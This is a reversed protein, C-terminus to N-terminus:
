FMKTLLIAFESDFLKDPGDKLPAVAAATLIYDQGLQFRLGATANLVDLRNYPNTVIDGSSPGAAALDTDNLTTSYHLEGIVAARQIWHGCHQSQYFWHGLTYDLYLFNQQQYRSIAFRNGGDGRSFTDGNLDFDLQAIATSWTRDTHRRYYAVFPLLHVSQNQVYCITSGLSSNTLRADPGTPLSVTLGASLASDNGQQLLISKFVLSMNGFEVDTQSGSGNVDQVNDLGGVLPMRVEISSSGELFTKELGLTVRNVDQGALDINRVPQSFHNYNVFWRNVPIPSVNEAIKFRRDGGAIPVNFGNNINTNGYSPGAILATSGFFDGITADRFGINENASAFQASTAFTTSPLPMAPLDDAPQMLDDTMPVEGMPSTSPTPQGPMAQGTGPQCPVPPCPNVCQCKKPACNCDAWVSTASVVHAVLTALAVMWLRGQM